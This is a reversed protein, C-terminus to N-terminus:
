TNEANSYTELKQHDAEELAITLKQVYKREREM